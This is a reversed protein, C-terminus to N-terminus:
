GRGFLGVTAEADWLGAELMRRIEATLHTAWILYDRESRGTGMIADLAQEHAEVMEAQELTAAGAEHATIADQLTTTPLQERVQMCVEECDGSRWHIPAQTISQMADEITMPDSM